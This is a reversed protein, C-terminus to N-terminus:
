RTSPARRPRGGRRGNRRAAAAKKPSRQRGLLAAPSVIAIASGRLSATVRAVKVVTRSDPLSLGRDQRDALYRALLNRIEREAQEATDAAAYVPLDPVYASVAGTAETEFVIPYRATM